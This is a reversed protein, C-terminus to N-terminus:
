PEFDDLDCGAERGNPEYAVDDHAVPCPKQDLAVPVSEKYAVVLDSDTYATLKAEIVQRDGFRSQRRSEDDLAM